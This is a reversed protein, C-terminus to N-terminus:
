QMGVRYAAGAVGLLAQVRLLDDLSPAQTPTCIYIYIYIYICM